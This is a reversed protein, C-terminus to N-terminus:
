LIFGKEIEVGEGKLMEIKKSTDKVFGGVECNSRVVRHCPVKGGIFPNKNLVSGVARYAKCNM